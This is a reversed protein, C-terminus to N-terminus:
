FICRKRRRLCTTPKPLNDFSLAFASRVSSRREVTSRLQWFSHPLTPFAIAYKLFNPFYFNRESIMKKSLLYRFNIGFLQFIINNPM